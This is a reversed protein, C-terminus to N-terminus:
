NANQVDDIARMLNSIEAIGDTSNAKVSEQIENLTKLAQSLATISEIEHDVEPHVETKPKM